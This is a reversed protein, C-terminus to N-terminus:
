NEAMRNVQAAICREPLGALHVQAHAGLPPGM